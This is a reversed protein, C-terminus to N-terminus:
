IRISVLRQCFADVFCENAVRHLSYFPALKTALLEQNCFPSGDILIKIPKLNRSEKYEEFLKDGFMGITSGTIIFEYDRLFESEVNLNLTLHNFM